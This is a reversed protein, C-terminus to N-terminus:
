GLDAHLKCFVYMANLLSDLFIQCGYVNTM